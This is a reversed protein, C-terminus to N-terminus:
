VFHEGIQFLKCIIAVLLYMESSPWATVSILRIDKCVQREGLVMSVSNATFEQGNMRVM